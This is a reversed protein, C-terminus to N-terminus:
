SLIKKSKRKRTEFIAMENYGIKKLIDYAINFHQGVREPKHADSNVCVPIGEEYFYHLYNRDPYFDNIHKNFGNTNLEFALDYSKLKCALSKYLHSIDLTPYFGFIRILDLHGIIDFLGSEIAKENLMFYEEWLLNIDKDKYFDPTMDVPGKELFHVSGILYDVPLSSCIKYIKEEAYMAYDVEFGILIKIDTRKERLNILEEIYNNIRKLDISVTSYIIDIALHESFGIESFGADVAKNIYDQFQSQGDSYLTHIHYDTKYM